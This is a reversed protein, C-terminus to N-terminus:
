LNLVELIVFDVDQCVEVLKENIRRLDLCLSASGTEMVTIKKSAWAEAVPHDL